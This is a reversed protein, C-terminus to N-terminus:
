QAIDFLPNPTNDAQNWTRGNTRKSWSYVGNNVSVLVEEASYLGSGLNETLQAFAVTVHYPTTDSTKQQGLPMREVKQIGRGIRGADKSTLGGLRNNNVPM